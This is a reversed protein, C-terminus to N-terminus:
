DLAKKYVYSPSCSLPGNYEAVVGTASVLNSTFKIINKDQTSNSKITVIVDYIGDVLEVNKVITSNENNYTVYGECVNLVFEFDGNEDYKFYSNADEMNVFLGYVGNKNITTVDSDGVGPVEIPTDTPDVVEPESNLFFYCLLGILIVILCFILFITSKKVIGTDEM